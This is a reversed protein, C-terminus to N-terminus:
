KIPAQFVMPVGSSKSMPVFYFTTNPSGALEKQMEIAYWQVYLPSLQQQIIKQADRIGKAEERKIDAQKKALALKHEAEEAKQKMKLKAEIAANVSEPPVVNRINIRDIYVFKKTLQSQTYDTIVGAYRSRNTNLERYTIKSVEDRIASRIGPLVFGNELTEYDKAVNSYLKDMKSIDVKWWLTVDITVSMDDKTRADIQQDVSKERIQWKVTSAWPRAWFQGPTVVKEYIKGFQLLLVGEGEDVENYSFITTLLLTLLLAVGAVIAGGTKVAPVDSYQYLEKTNMAKKAFLYTIFGGIAIVLLLGLLIITGM